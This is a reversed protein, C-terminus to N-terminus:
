RDRGSRGGAVAAVVQFVFASVWLATRVTRAREWAVWIKRLGDPPASSNWTMLQDNIPFNVRLTVAAAAVITAIATRTDLILPPWAAGSHSVAVCHQRGLTGTMLKPMITSYHSHMVQQLTM